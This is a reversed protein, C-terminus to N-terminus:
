LFEVTKVKCGEFNLTLEELKPLTTLQFINSSTMTTVKDRGGFSLYLTKINKLKAIEILKMENTTAHNIKLFELLPCRAIFEWFTYSQFTVDFLELSLLNPFGRFSHPNPFCCEYLELHKLEMRSYLQTPMKLPESTWNNITLEEIGKRSLFLVWHHIEDYNLVQSGLEHNMFSLVFKRIPGKLHLLLRTIHKGDFNNPLYRFFWEDFTLQTLLTWKSRWDRSLMSTKVADQIPLRDLINTIVNDPMSSIFDELACKSAKHAGHVPEM